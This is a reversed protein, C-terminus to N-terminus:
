VAADDDNRLGARRLIAEISRDDAVLPAGVIAGVVKDRLREMREAKDQPWEFDDIEGAALIQREVLKEEVVALRDRTIWLECVLATIMRGLDDVNDNTLYGGAM